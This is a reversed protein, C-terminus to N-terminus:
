AAATNATPVPAANRAVGRRLDDRLSRVLLWNSGAVILAAALVVASLVAVQSNRVEEDAELSSSHIGATVARAGRRHAARDLLITGILLAGTLVGALEAPQGSLRLGNQLLAIALLGLVTGLVTGRGGRLSTGGLVVATIALLEYGTGADSKAQGVHAVYIIAAISAMFGSLVYVVALRRVVPVGAYRAGEAAHGIAYLTRGFVTRQLLWWF